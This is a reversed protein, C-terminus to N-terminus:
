PKVEVLDKSDDSCEECLEYCSCEAQGNLHWIHSVWMGDIFIAGHIPHCGGGDVAYIRVENGGKTRYQKDMSIM